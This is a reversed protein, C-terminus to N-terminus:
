ELPLQEDVQDFEYDHLDVLEDPIAAGAKSGIKKDTTKSAGQNKAEM